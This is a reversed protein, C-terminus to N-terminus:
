DGFIEAVPLAFAPLLRSTLTANADLEESMDFTPSGAASRRFILM